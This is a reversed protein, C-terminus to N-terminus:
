SPPNFNHLLSKGSAEGVFVDFIFPVSNGGSPLGVTAQGDDKVDYTDTFGLGHAIEHLVITVLDMRGAPTAGDTNLYWSVRSNFSAVIDPDTAHNLEKGSIKEALAVPYFTNMHQEGGFNAYA